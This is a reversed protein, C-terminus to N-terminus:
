GEHAYTVRIRRDDLIQGNMEKRATAAVTESVFRVFGYGRSKSTVHDCIVRVEIIEGHKEFAYRLISENTDWSLGEVFLNASSHRRVCLFRSLPFLLSNGKRLASTLQM